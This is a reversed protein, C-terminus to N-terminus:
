DRGGSRLELIRDIRSNLANLGEDFRATAANLVQTVRDISPCDSCDRRDRSGVDVTPISPGRRQKVANAVLGLVFALFLGCTAALGGITYVAWLPLTQAAEPAGM